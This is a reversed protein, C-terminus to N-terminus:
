SLPIKSVVFCFSNLVSGGKKRELLYNVSTASCREIRASALYVWNVGFVGM